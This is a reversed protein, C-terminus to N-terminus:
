LRSRVRPQRPKRSESVGDIYASAHGTVLRPVTGIKTPPPSDRNENSSFPVTGKRLAVTTEEGTRLPAVLPRAKGAKRYQAALRAAADRADFKQQARQGARSALGLRLSRNGIVKRIAAALAEPDDPPVLLASRSRLPFIERTGGVDTAVVPCGSAAAELLVRGLPEQRAPHVLLFFENLLRPVDSRFGLFHFRGPMRRAAGRLSAEFERSEGKNSYREGVILFHVQPMEHVLKAAAHALVDQGKRLAIQGITGILRADPPLGLERHLYGNGSEPRFQSLDVGNYLVHLKAADLGQAVHFARTARSVALLRTHRDLDAVAQRSLKVIDRLHAISPVGLEAAVPGSLRGMSLSNAHVLDPRRRAILEALERRLRAQSPHCPSGTGGSTCFPEVEIGRARLTEALPGTPPAAVSVRFGTRGLGELTALMSQEGGNLTAYECLLLVQTM